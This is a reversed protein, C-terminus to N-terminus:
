KEGKKVSWLGNDLVDDTEGGYVGFVGSCMGIYLALDMDNVFPDAYEGRRRPTFLSGDPELMTVSFPILYACTASGDPRFMYLTNRLCREARDRWSKEGTVAAYQMFARATIASHQHLTDGFLQRKGFWYGDWHRIATEHLKHDPQNGQFRSLVDVQEKLAELIGPVRDVLVSYRSLISVPATAITQEFRVEHAPYELGNRIINDVHRAVAAKLTGVDCGEKELLVLETAFDCGNPYFRDGGLRYYDLLGKEIFRLYKPDKKFAYCERWFRVLHPANYLRKHRPDKGITDYVMCTEEDFFERLAFREFLDLSARVEPDDHRRLWRALTLAMAVRERCANFDHFAYDFYQRKEEYDYILYAGYLPSKKDLCQQKSVIFDVRSRVLDDFAPSCYGHARAKKGGADFEFDYVGLGKDPKRSYHRTTGDTSTVDVEFSENPFITEQEFDIKVGGRRLLEGDFGGAPCSSITWAITMAEGGLLVFPDPHLAFDGRDNSGQGRLVRRVSYSDLSGKQLVLALEVPYPGMKVARVWSNEGGCWIHADCRRVLCEAAGSYSDNFTALIELGGRGFYVPYSVANSIVYSEELADSLLHRTVTVRLPGSVYTSVVANEAQCMSEFTFPVSDDLRPHWQHPGKEPDLGWRMWRVSGWRGTGEIWNMKETDNNLVLSALTGDDAWAVTFVDNSRVLSTADHVPVNAVAVKVIAAFVASIIKGTRM